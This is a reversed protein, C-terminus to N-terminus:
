ENIHAAASIWIQAGVSIWDKGGNKQQM